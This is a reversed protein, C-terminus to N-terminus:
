YATKDKQNNWLEFLTLTELRLIQTSKVLRESPKKQLEQYFLCDDFGAAKADDKTAAYYFSDLRSWYIAALCMPCPECSTFLVAGNLSFSELKKCANRIACIEAHATPDHSSTVINHGRGIIQSDKVIIAGFPGGECSEVGKKGEHIAQKMFFQIQDPTM